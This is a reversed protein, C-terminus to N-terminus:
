PYTITGMGSNIMVRFSIIPDAALATSDADCSFTMDDTGTAVSFVNTMTGPPYQFPTGIAAFDANETGAENQGSFRIEGVEQEQNGGSAYTITYAITGGVSTNNPLAITVFPTAVTDALTKTKGNQLTVAKLGGPDGVSNTIDLLGDSSNKLISSNAMQYELSNIRIFAGAAGTVFDLTTGSWRFGPSADTVGGLGIRAAAARYIPSDSLETAGSAYPLAGTTLSGGGGVTVTGSGGSGGGSYESEQANTSSVYGISLTLLIVAVLAIVHKM